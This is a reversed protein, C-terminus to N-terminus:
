VPIRGVRRAAHTNWVRARGDTDLADAGLTVEHLNLHTRDFLPIRVLPRRRSRRGSAYSIFSAAPCSGAAEKEVAAARADALVM